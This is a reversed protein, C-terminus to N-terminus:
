RVAHHVGESDSSSDAIQILGQSEEPSPAKAPEASKAAALAVHKKKEELEMM